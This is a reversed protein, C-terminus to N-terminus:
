DLFIKSIVIINDNNVTLQWVSADDALIYLTDTLFEGGVPDIVQIVGEDTVTFAAESLDPKTVKYSIGDPLNNNLISKLTLTNSDVIIDWSNGNPSKLIVAYATQIYGGSTVILSVDMDVKHNCITQTYWGEYSCGEHPYKAVFTDLPHSRIPMDQEFRGTLPLGVWGDTFPDIPDSDFYLGSDFPLGRDFSKRFNGIPADETIFLDFTYAAACMSVFVESEMFAKLFISKFCETSAQILLSDTGIKGFTFEHRQISGYYKFIVESESISLIEFIDPQNAIYNLFSLWSIINIDTMWVHAEYGAYQSASKTWPDLAPFLEFTDKDMKRYIPTSLCIAKIIDKIGTDTGVSHILGRALFRFSMTKLSQVSPLLNQFSVFPEMLRTAMTSSIADSQENLIKGSVNYLVRAFAEWLSVITTASVILHTEENRIKATILNKGRCLNISTTFKSSPVVSSYTDTIQRIDIGTGYDGIHSVTISLVEGAYWPDTEINLSTKNPTFPTIIDNLLYFMGKPSVWPANNKQMSFITDDYTNGHLSIKIM